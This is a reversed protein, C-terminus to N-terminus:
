NIIEVQINKEFSRFKFNPDNHHELRSRKKDGIGVGVLLLIKEDVNLIDKIINSDLCQCIGTDYGILNATLTLYGTAVGLSIHEDQKTRGLEIGKKYEDNTRIFNDRDRVFVFLANALVQSNTTSLQNKFDYVYGDTANHIAEIKERDKICIIKYFVRNQKSPCQTVSTLMTDIDSDSVGKSLNWNRYCHQSKEITEELYENSIM